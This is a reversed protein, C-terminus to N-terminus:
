WSAISNLSKIKDLRILVDNEGKLFEEGEKAFVDLILGYYIQENNLEVYEIKCKEKLSAAALLMDHFTCHIPKYDKM